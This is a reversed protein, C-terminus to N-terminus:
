EARHVLREHPLDFRRLLLAAGDLADGASSDVVLSAGRLNSALREAFWAHETLGGVAAVRAAEAGQSGRAAAVVSAGLLRVAEDVIAQGVADGREAGDLTAPAFSGLLRAPNSQESVRRVIDQLSGDATLRDLLASHPGLGADARLAARVTERGIWAGSGFDGLQPGWGDVLRAADEDLMLAVAGTGAILLVGPGGGLAGAHAMVVDSGVVAACALRDAVDHALRAASGPHTWAGAVGVGVGTPAVSLAEVEGAIRETLVDVAGDLGLSAIGASERVQRNGKPGVSIRCRTKGVDVVVVAPIM